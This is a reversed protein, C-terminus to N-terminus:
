VTDCSKEVKKRLRYMYQRQNDPTVEPYIGGTHFTFVLQRLQNGTFGPFMAQYKANDMLARFRLQTYADVALRNSHGELSCWMWLHIGDCSLLDDYRIADTGVLWSGSLMVDKSRKPEDQVPYQDNSFYHTIAEAPLSTWDDASMWSAFRGPMLDMRGLQRKDYKPLQESVRFGEAQLFDYAPRLWHDLPPPQQEQAIGCKIREVMLHCAKKFKGRARHQMLASARRDLEMDFADMM